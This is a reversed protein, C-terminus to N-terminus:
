GQQPPTGPEPAAPGVAAPASESKNTAPQIVQGDMMLRHLEALLDTFKVPKSLYANAGVEMARKRSSEEIRASLVLVPIGAHPAFDPLTRIRRCVEFGEIDPLMLDLIMIEPREAQVMVLGEEGNFAGITEYGNIQLFTQLMDVTLPEDDVILLKTM